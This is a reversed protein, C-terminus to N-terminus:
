FNLGSKVYVNAVAPSSEIWALAGQGKRNMRISIDAVGNRRGVYSLREFVWGSGPTFRSLAFQGIGIIPSKWSVLARGDDTLYPTMPVPDGFDAALDALPAFLDVPSNWGALPDLLSASVSFDYANEWCLVAGGHINMGIKPFRPQRKLDSAVALTTGWGASPTFNRSFAKRVIPTTSSEEFWAVTAGGADNGAAAVSRILNNPNPAVQEASQWGSGPLWRSSFIGQRSSVAAGDCNFSSWVLGAQGNAAVDLSTIAITCLGPDVVPVNVPASWRGSTADYASSRFGSDRWFVLANGQADIGVSIQEDPSTPSPPNLQQPAQWGTGPMYLAAFVGDIQGWAAVVVGSDNSATKVAQAFAKQAVTKIPAAVSWSSIGPAATSWLVDAAGANALPCSWMSFARGAGDISLSGLQPNCTSVDRYEALSQIPLVEVNVGKSVGGSASTVTVIGPAVATAFGKSDSANSVKLLSSNSSNWDMLQTVDRAQDTYQGTASFQFTAGVGLGLSQATVVEVSQLYIGVRVHALASVGKYTVTVDTLGNTIGQVIGTSGGVTAVEPKSSIWVGDHTIEFSTGDSMKADARFFIQGSPAVDWSIDRLAISSVTPNATGGGGNGTSGGTSGGGSSGGGGCASVALGITCALVWGSLSRSLDMKM